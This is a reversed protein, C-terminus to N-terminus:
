RSNVATHDLHNLFDFASYLSKQVFDLLRQLMFSVSRLGHATDPDIFGIYLQQRQADRRYSIANDLHRCQQDQFRDELRVKQLTTESEAAVPRGMIGQLLNLRM